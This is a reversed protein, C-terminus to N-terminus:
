LFERSNRPGDKSNWIFKESSSELNKLVELEELAESRESCGWFSRWFIAM